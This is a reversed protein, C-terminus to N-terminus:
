ASRLRSSPATGACALYSSGLAWRVCRRGRSSSQGISRTSARSGTPFSFKLPKGSCSQGPTALLKEAQANVLEIIGHRNVIVIADPAADLLARFKEEGRRAVEAGAIVESQAKAEQIRFALDDLLVNLALAFRTPLHDPEPDDPLRVRATPDGLSANSMVAFIEDFTLDSTM